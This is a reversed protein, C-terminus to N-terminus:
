FDEDSIFSSALLGNKQLFTTCVDLFEQSERIKSLLEGQQKKLERIQNELSVREERGKQAEKEAAKLRVDLEYKDRKKEIQKQQDYSIQLKFSEKEIELIRIRERMMELEQRQELAQQQELQQQIFNLHQQQQLPNFRALEPTNGPSQNHLLHSPQGSLQSLSIQPFFNQQQTGQVISKLQLNELDLTQNLEKLKQIEQHAKNLDLYLQDLKTAYTEKEDQIKKSLKINEQKMEEFEVKLNIYQNIQSENNKIEAQQSQIKLKLAINENKIEKSQLDVEKMLDEKDRIAQHLKPIESQGQIQNELKSSKEELKTYRAELVRKDIKLEQYQKQVEEYQNKWTEKETQNYDQDQSRLSRITSLNGEMLQSQNDRTGM